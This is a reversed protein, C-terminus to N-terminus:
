NFHSLFRFFKVALEPKRLGRSFHRLTAFEVMHFVVHELSEGESDAESKLYQYLRDPLHVTVPTAPIDLIRNNDPGDAQRM